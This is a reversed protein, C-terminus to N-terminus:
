VISENHILMIHISIYLHLLHYYKWTNEVMRGKKIGCRSTSPSTELLRAQSPPFIFTSTNMCTRNWNRPVTCQHLNLVLIQWMLAFTSKNATFMPVVDCWMIQWILAFTCKNATFIPTAACWMASLWSVSMPMFTWHWM